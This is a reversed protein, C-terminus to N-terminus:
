EQILTVSTGSPLRYVLASTDKAKYQDGDNLTTYDSGYGKLRIINQGVFTFLDGLKLDIFEIYSNDVQCEVRAM